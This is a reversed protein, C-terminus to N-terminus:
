SGALLTEKAQSLSSEDVKIDKYLFTTPREDDLIGRESNISGPFGRSKPVSSARQTLTSVNKTAHNGSDNKSTEQRAHLPARRQQTNGASQVEFSNM